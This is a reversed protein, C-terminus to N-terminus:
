ADKKSGNIDGLKLSVNIDERMMKQFSKFRRHTAILDVILIAILIIIAAGTLITIIM